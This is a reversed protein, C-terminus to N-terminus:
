ESIKGTLFDIALNLDSKGLIKNITRDKFGNALNLIQENIKKLEQANSEIEQVGELQQKDLKEKRWRRCQEILIWNNENQETNLKVVRAVTEDDLIHPKNKVQELNRIQDKASELMGRSLDVYVSIMTPSYWNPTPKESM